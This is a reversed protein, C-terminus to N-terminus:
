SRSLHAAIEHVLAGMTGKEPQIAPVVGHAALEAACVPGISAVLVRERLAPALVDGLGLRQAVVFLHKVQPSSTFALVHVEGSVLATVLRELPEQDQPLAWEYLPVDLVTAGRATLSTVLLPNDDGYLQVAVVKGDLPHSALAALVGESTPASPVVHVRIGADRLAAVPKPGRAVVLSRALAAALSEDRGHRKGLELFARAGVGTLFIVVDVEGRCIREIAEVAPRTDQRLVERMAPASLVAGGLKSVLTSLERARRSETIAVIKGQLSPVAAVNASV